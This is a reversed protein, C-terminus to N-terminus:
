PNIQNNLRLIEQLLRQNGNAEALMKAAQLQQKAAEQRGNRNLAVALTYRYSPQKGGSLAVAKEAYRVAEAYRHITKEPAASLLWALNNAVDARNPELGFLMRFPAVADAWRQELLASMAVVRLAEPQQPVQTLVKQALPHAQQFHDNKAYVLMLRLQTEYIDPRLQLAQRFHEAAHQSQNDHMALSGLMVHARYTAGVDEISAQWLQQESRWDALRNRSLYVGFGLLCLAILTVFHRSNRSRDAVQALGSACVFCIALSPVYLYRDALFFPSLPIFNATPLWTFLFWATALRTQGTNKGTLIFWFGAGLLLAGAVATVLHDAPVLPYEASLPTPAILLRAQGTVNALTQHIVASYHQLEGGFLVRISNDSVLGYAGAAVLILGASAGFLIAISQFSRRAPTQFPAWGQRWRYWVAFPLLGVVAVEKAALGLVFCLGAAGYRTHRSWTSQQLCLGCMAVALMALIDKRNVFSAVAEVHVPHVAFLLACLLAVRRPQPLRRILAYVAVVVASHLLVNTLHFGFANDGWLAYDFLHVAYTLGRPRLLARAPSQSLHAMSEIRFADDYVFGLSLAPWFVLIAALGAFLPWLWAPGALDAAPPSTTDAHKAVRTQKATRKKAVLATEMSHDM